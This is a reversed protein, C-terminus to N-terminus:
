IWIASSVLWLNQNLKDPTPGVFKWKWCIELQQQQGQGPFRVQFGNLELVSCFIHSFSTFCPLLLFHFKQELFSCICLLAVSVSEILALTLNPPNNQIVLFFRLASTWVTPQFSSFCPPSDQILLPSMSLLHLDPLRSQPLPTLRPHPPVSMWLLPVSVFIVLFSSCDPPGNQPKLACSPTSDDTSLHHELLPVPHSRPPLVSTPFHLQFCLSTSPIILPLQIPPPFGTSLGQFWELDHAWEPLLCTVFILWSDPTLVQFMCAKDLYTASVQSWTITTM